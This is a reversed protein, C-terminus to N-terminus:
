SDSCGLCGALLHCVTDLNRHMRPVSRWVGTALMQYNRVMVFGEADFDPEVEGESMVTPKKVNGGVGRM